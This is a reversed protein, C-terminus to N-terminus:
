FLSSQVSQRRKKTARRRGKAKAKTMGSGKRCPQYHGPKFRGKSDRGPTARTRKKAAM